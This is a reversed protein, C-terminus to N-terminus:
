GYRKESHGRCGRPDCHIGRIRQSREGRSNKIESRLVASQSDTKGDAEIGTATPKQLLFSVTRAGSKRWLIVASRKSIREERYDYQNGILHALFNQDVALKFIIRAIRDESDKIKGDIVSELAPTLFEVFREHNLYEIYFEVARRIFENRSSESTKETMTDCMDWMEQSMRISKAPMNDKAM